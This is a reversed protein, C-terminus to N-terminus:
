SSLVDRMSTVLVCTCGTESWVRADFGGPEGRNYDGPYLKRENIWLEGDLLHLEEVGAHHHPPYSVGPALRVLMSVYGTPDDTSLIKVEIGPAVKQWDPEIWSSRAQVAAAGASGAPTIREAVRDWLSRSAPLVDSPWRIFSGVVPRLTGLENRCEACEDLHDAMASREATPLADLAYLHLAEAHECRYDTRTSPGSM